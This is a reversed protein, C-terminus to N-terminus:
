GVEFPPDRQKTSRTDRGAGKVALVDTKFVFVARFVPELFVRGAM